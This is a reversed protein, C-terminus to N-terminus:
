SATKRSLQLLELFSFFGLVIFVYFFAPPIALEKVLGILICFQLGTTIKGWLISRCTFKDWLGSFRLYVGFLAVFFDRAMLSFVQWLELRGEFCLVSLSFFVFFKDMAPDLIAGFRSTSRSRRALYGDISDTLMAFFIAAIRAWGNECLFLFALPARLLSLTNSLSLIM